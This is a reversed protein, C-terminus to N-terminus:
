TEIEPNTEVVCTSSSFLPSYDEREREYGEEEVKLKREKEVAAAAELLFFRLLDRVKKVPGNERELM